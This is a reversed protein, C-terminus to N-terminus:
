AIAVDPTVFKHEFNQTVYINRLQHKAIVIRIEGFEVLDLLGSLSIAQGWETVANDTESRIRVARRRRDTTNTDTAM